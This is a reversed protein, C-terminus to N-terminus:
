CYVEHYNKVIKIDWNLTKLTAIIADEISRHAGWPETHWGKIEWEEFLDDKVQNWSESFDFNEKPRVSLICLNEGEDELQVIVIERKM